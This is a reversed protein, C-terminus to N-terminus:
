SIAEIFIHTCPIAMGEGGDGNGNLDSHGVLEINKQEPSDAAWNLAPLLMFLGALPLAVLISKPSHM